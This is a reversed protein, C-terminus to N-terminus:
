KGHMAWAPGIACIAAWSGGVHGWSENFVVFGKSNSGDHDPEDGFEQEQLWKWAFETATECDIPCPFKVGKKGYQDLVLFPGSDEVGLLGVRDSWDYEKQDIPEPKYIWWSEANWAHRFALQLALDFDERSKSVIVLRNNDM